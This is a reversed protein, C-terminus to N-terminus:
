QRQHCRYRRLLIWYKCELIQFLCKMIKFYTNTPKESISPFLINYNQVLNRELGKLLLELKEEFGEKVAVLFASLNGLGDLRGIIDGALNLTYVINRDDDPKDFRVILLCFVSYDLVRLNLKVVFNHIVGYSQM